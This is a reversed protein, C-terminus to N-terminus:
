ADPSKALAIMAALWRPDDEQLVACRTQMFYHSIGDRFMYSERLGIGLLKRRSSRKFTEPWQANGLTPRPHHINSEGAFYFHVPPHGQEAETTVLSEAVTPPLGTMRATGIVIADRPNNRRKFKDLHRRNLDDMERSPHKGGNGWPLSQVAEPKAPVTTVAVPIAHHLAARVWRALPRLEAKAVPSPMTPAQEDEQARRVLYQAFKQYTEIQDLRRQAEPSELDLWRMASKTAAIIVQPALLRGSWERRFTHLYHAPLNGGTVAATIRPGAIRWDQRMNATAM